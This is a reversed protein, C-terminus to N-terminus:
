KRPKPLKLGGRGRLAKRFADEAKEFERRIDLLLEAAQKSDYEYHRRDALNAILKLDHLTALRRGEALRQFRDKKSEKKSEGEAAHTKGAQVEDESADDKTDDINM